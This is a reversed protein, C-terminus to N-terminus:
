GDEDLDLWTHQELMRHPTSDDIKNTHQSEPVDDQELTPSELEIDLYSGALQEIKIDNATSDFYHTKRFSSKVSRANNCMVFENPSLTESVNRGLGEDFYTKKYM